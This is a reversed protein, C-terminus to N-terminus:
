QTPILSLQEGEHIECPLCERTLIAAAAQTMSIKNVSVAEIDEQDDRNQSYQRHQERGNGNHHRPVEDEYAQHRRDRRAAESAAGKTEEM